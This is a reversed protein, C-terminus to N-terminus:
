RKKRLRRVTPIADDKLRPKNAFELDAMLTYSDKTFHAGCVHIEKPLKVPINDKYIFLLWEQRRDDEPLIHLRKDPKKCGLVHCRKPMKAFCSLETNYVTPGELLCDRM